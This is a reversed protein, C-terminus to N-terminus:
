YKQRSGVAQWRQGFVTLGTVLLIGGGALAFLGGSITTRYAFDASLNGTRGIFRGTPKGPM